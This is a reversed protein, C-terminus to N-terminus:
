SRDSLASVPLAAASGAGASARASPASVRLRARVSELSDAFWSELPAAIVLDAARGARLGLRFNRWIRRVRWPTVISYIVGALVLGAFGVPADRQGVNFAAVGLEGALSTDFGTIVHHLDHTAAYRLPYPRKAFRARMAASPELPTIRNDDLFSAYARGLTGRPLARLEALDHKPVFGAFPELARETEAPPSSLADLKLLVVDALPAGSVFARLMVILKGLNM